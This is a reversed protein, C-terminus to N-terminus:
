VSYRFVLSLNVETAPLRQIPPVDYHLADVPCSSFQGGQIGDAAELVSVAEAKNNVLAQSKAHQPLGPPPGALVKAKFLGINFNDAGGHTFKRERRIKGGLVKGRKASHGVDRFISLRTFFTAHM